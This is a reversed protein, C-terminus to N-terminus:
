WREVVYRGPLTARALDVFGDGPRYTFNFRELLDRGLLNPIERVTGEPVFLEDLPEDHLEILRGDDLTVFLLSVNRVTYTKIGGGVGGMTPGERLRVGDFMAVDEGEASRSYSVGLKEADVANIMTKDAGTDVLFELPPPLRGQQVHVPFLVFAPVIPVGGFMPGQM